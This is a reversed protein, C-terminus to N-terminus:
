FSAPAALGRYAWTRGGDTSRYRWAAFRGPHLPEEDDTYAVATMTAGRGFTLSRIGGGIYTRWWTRGGDSTAVISAGWAAVTGAAGGIYSVAKAGQAADIHLEPGYNTWTHGGDDSIVAYTAGNLDGDRGVTLGLLRGGFRSQASVV